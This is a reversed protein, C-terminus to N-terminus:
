ISLIDLSRCCMPVRRVIARAGITLLIGSAGGVPVSLLRELEVVFIM